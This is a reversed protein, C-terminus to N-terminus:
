GDRTTPPLDTPRLLDLSLLPFQQFARDL